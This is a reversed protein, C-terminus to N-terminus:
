ALQDEPIALALLWSLVGLALELTDEGLLRTNYQAVGAAHRQGVKAHQRENDSAQLNLMGTGLEVDARHLIVDATGRYRDGDLVKFTTVSYRNSGLDPRQPTIEIGDLM